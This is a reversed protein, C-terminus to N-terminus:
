KGKTPERSDKPKELQKPPLVAGGAIPTLYTMGGTPAGAPEDATLRDLAWKTGKKRALALIIGEDTAYDPQLDETITISSRFDLTDDCLFRLSCGLARSLLYLDRPSPNGTGHVWKSIRSQARQITAALDSQRIGRREILRALKDGFKMRSTKVLAVM